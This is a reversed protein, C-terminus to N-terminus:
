LTILRALQFGIEANDAEIIQYNELQLFSRVLKLNLENDEVVLITKNEM